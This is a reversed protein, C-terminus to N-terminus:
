TDQELEPDVSWRAGCSIKPACNALYAGYARLWWIGIESLKIVKGQCPELEDCVVKLGTIM